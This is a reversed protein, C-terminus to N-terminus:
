EKEKPEAKELPLGIKKLPPLNFKEGLEALKEPKIDGVVNILVAEKKGDLVTVVVGEIAEQSRTKLYVGVDEKAEQVTVIREWGQSDLQARIAKVRSEIDERNDDNLGIVNVRIGQLGQLLQTVEPQAKGALKTVMAILNSNVNVEVFESGPGPTFKGFDVYGAPAAALLGVQTLGAWLALAITNGILHKM